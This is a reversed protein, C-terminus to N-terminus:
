APSAWEPSYRQLLRPKIWESNVEVSGYQSRAIEYPGESRLRQRDGGSYELPVGRGQTGMITLRTYAFHLWIATCGRAAASSGCIDLSRCPMRCTLSASSPPLGSSVALSVANPDKVVAVRHRSPQNCVVRGPLSMLVSTRVLM